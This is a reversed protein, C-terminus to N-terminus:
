VPYVGQKRRSFILAPRSAVEAARQRSVSHGCAIHCTEHAIVGKIEDPSDAAIILGTHIHINQGNAVFANLSPDNIIYFGVDKPNLGAVTLIPDTWERLTEEIEADRILSQASATFAFAAAALSTAALRLLQRAM